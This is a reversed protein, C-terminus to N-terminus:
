WGGAGELGLTKFTSSTPSAKQLVAIDGKVETQSLYLTQLNTLSQLAAIDGKVQTKGLNLIEVVTCGACRVGMWECPNGEGIFCLGRLQAAMEEMNTCQPAEPIAEAKCVKSFLLRVVGPSVNSM